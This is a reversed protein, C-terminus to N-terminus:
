EIPTRIKQIFYAWVDNMLWRPDQEWISSVLSDAQQPSWGLKQMAYTSFFATVRYNAACHILVKKQEAQSMVEVFTTYDEPAPNSWDVPINHYELGLSHCLAAEDTLANSSSHPALNIVVQFGEDAAAHLQAEDPQGALIVKEDIYRYNFIEETSM